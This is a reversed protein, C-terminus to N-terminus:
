LNLKLLRSTEKIGQEILLLKVGIKNLMRLHLKAQEIKWEEPPENNMKKEKKEGSM